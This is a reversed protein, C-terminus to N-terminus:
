AWAGPRVLVGTLEDSRVGLRLNGLRILCPRGPQIMQVEAGDRLGMERLRHVLDSAGLVAAISATQGPSLFSLPILDHAAATAM